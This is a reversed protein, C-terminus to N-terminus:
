LAERNASAARVKAPGNNGPSTGAFQPLTDRYRWVPISEFLRLAAMSACMYGLGVRLLIGAAVALPLLGLLVRVNARLGGLMKPSRCTIEGM